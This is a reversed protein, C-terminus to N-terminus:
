GGARHAKKAFSAEPAPWSDPHRNENYKQAWATCYWHFQFGGRRLCCRWCNRVKCEVSVTYTVDDPGPVVKKAIGAIELDRHEITNLFGTWWPIVGRSECDTQYDYYALLMAASDVWEDEIWRPWDAMSASSAHPISGPPAALHSVLVLSM